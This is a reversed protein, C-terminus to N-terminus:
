GTSHRVWQGATHLADAADAALRRVLAGAPSVDHVLAASQGTFPLLEELRDEVAATRVEARLRDAAARAGSVSIRRSAASAHRRAPCRCRARSRSVLRAPSPPWYPQSARM